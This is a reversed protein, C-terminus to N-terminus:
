RKGGNKLTIDRFLHKVAYSALGVIQALNQVLLVPLLWDYAKFDLVGSGVLVLLIMQYGIMCGVAWLLFRSWQGKHKYHQQVGKYHEYKTRSELEQSDFLAIYRKGGDPDPAPTEDLGKPFVFQINGGESPGESM